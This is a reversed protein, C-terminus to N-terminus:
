YLKATIIYEIGMIKADAENSDFIIAQYVDENLQSVYHHAEMQARTNGNYFHFGDLYTSFQRLPTKDQMLKAGTNLAKDKATKDDGPSNVPSGSNNGGCAICALLGTILLMKYCPM